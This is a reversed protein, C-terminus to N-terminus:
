SPKSPKIKRASKKRKSKSKRKRPSAVKDKKDIPEPTLEEATFVKEGAFENVIAVVKEFIIKQMSRANRGLLKPPLEKPMRFLSSKVALIKKVEDEEVKSKPILEGEEELYKREERLAKAKRYREDWTDGKKEEVKKIAKQNKTVSKWKSIEILDYTGAENVPMGDKKWYQVARTSVKFAKAVKTESDVVWEKQEGLEYKALQDMQASTLYENKQAKELLLIHQKKKVMDIINTKKINDTM